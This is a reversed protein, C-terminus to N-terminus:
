ALLGAGKLRGRLYAEAKGIQASITSGSLGAKKSLDRIPTGDRVSRQFFHAAQPYDLSLDHLATGITSLVAREEHPDSIRGGDVQVHVLKGGAATEMRPSWSSASQARERAEFYWGVAQRIGMFRLGDGKIRRQLASEARSLDRAAAADKSSM